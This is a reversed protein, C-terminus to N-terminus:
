HSKNLEKPSALCFIILDLYLTTCSVHINITDLPSSMLVYSIFFYIHLLNDTLYCLM